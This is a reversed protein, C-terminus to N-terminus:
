KKRPAPRPSFLNTLQSCELGYGGCEGDEDNGKPCIWVLLWMPLIIHEAARGNNEHQIYHRNGLMNGGHCIGVRTPKQGHHYHHSDTLHFIGSYPLLSHSPSSPSSPRSMATASPSPSVAPQKHVILIPTSVHINVEIWQVIHQKPLINEKWGFFSLCIM